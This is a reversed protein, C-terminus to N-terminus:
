KRKNKQMKYVKEYDKLEQDYQTFMKRKSLRAKLIAYIKKIDFFRDAVEIVGGFDDGIWYYEADKGFYKAVFYKALQNCAMEYYCLEVQNIKTM